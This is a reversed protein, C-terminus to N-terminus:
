RPSCSMRPFNSMIVGNVKKSVHKSFRSAFRMVSFLLKARNLATSRLLDLGAGAPLGRVICQLIEVKRGAM